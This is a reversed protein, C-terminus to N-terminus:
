TSLTPSPCVLSPASLAQTTSFLLTEPSVHVILTTTPPIPFLPPSAPLRAYDTIHTASPIAVRPAPFPRTAPLIWTFETCGRVFSFPSLTTTVRATIRRMLNDAPDTEFTNSCAHVSHYSTQASVLLDSQSRPCVPPPGRPNNQHLVSVSFPFPCGFQSCFSSPNPM